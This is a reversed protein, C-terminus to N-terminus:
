KLKKKTAIKFHSAKPKRKATKKKAGKRSHVKRGRNVAIATAATAENKATVFTKPPEYSDDSVPKESKLYQDAAANYDADKEEAEPPNKMMEKYGEIVKMPEAEPLQLLKQVRPSKTGMPVYQSLRAKHGLIGQGITQTNAPPSLSIHPRSLIKFNVSPYSDVVVGLVM